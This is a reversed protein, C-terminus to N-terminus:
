GRRNRPRRSLPVDFVEKLIIATGASQPSRLLAALQALTPSPAKRGGAPRLVQVQAAPTLPAAPGPPPPQAELRAPEPSRPPEVRPPPFSPAPAEGVAELLVPARGPRPLPSAPEVNRRRPQSPPRPPRREAVPVPRPPPPPAPRPPAEGAPQPGREAAERRRRAEELFRDLDTVPRRPSPSRPNAGPRTGPRENTGKFVTSLVWVILPVLLVLVYELGHM